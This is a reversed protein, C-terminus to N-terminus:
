HGDVSWHWREAPFNHLGVRPAVMELFRFVDDNIKFDIAMGVNHRSKGPIATPIRCRSSSAFWVDPCGNKSRLRIQTQIDRYGWGELHVGEWTAAAWLLRVPEELCPAVTVSTTDGNPLPLGTVTTRPIETEETVGGPFFCSGEELIDVAANLTNEIYRDADGIADAPLKDRIDAGLAFKIVHWNPEEMTRQDNQNAELYEKFYELQEHLYETMGPGDLSRFEPMRIIVNFLYASQNGWGWSNMLKINPVDILPCDRDPNPASAEALVMWLRACGDIGEAPLGELLNKLDDSLGRVEWGYAEAAAFARWAM